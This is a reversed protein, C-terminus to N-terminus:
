IKVEGVPAVKTCEPRAQEFTYAGRILKEESLAPGILQMGIPLGEATFGAPVSIAPIGALNVPITCMDELYM